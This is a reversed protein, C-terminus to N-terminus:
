GTIFMTRDEKTNTQAACSIWSTVVRSSGWRTGCSKRRIIQLTARAIATATGTASARAGDGVNEYLFEWRRFELFCRIIKQLIISQSGAPTSDLWSPWSLRGDRRPPLAAQMPCLRLVQAPATGSMKMSFNGVADQCNITRDTTLHSRKYRRKLIPKETITVPTDVVGPFGPFRRSDLQDDQFNKHLIDFISRM